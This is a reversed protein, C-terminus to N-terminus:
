IHILSLYDKMEKNSNLALSIQKNNKINSDITKKTKDEKEKSMKKNNRLTENSAKVKEEKRKSNKKRKESEKLSKKSQQKKRECFDKDTFTICNSNINQNLFNIKSKFTQTTSCKKIMKTVMKLYNNEKEVWTLEKETQSGKNKSLIIFSDENMADSSLSGEPLNQQDCVKEIPNLELVRSQNDNISIACNNQNESYPFSYPAMQKYDTINTLFNSGTIDKTSGDAFKYNTLLSDELEM